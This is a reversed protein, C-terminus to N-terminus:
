FHLHPYTFYIIRMNLSQVIRKWEMILVVRGDNQGFYENKHINMSLSMMRLSDLAKMYKM